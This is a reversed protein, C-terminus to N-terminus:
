EEEKLRLVRGGLGSIKGKEL